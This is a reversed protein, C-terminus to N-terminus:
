WIRLRQEWGLRLGEDGPAKAIGRIWRAFFSDLSQGSARECARQFDATEVVGYAHDAVYSRLAKAFAPAGIQRELMVLAAPGRQFTASGFLTNFDAPNAPVIPTSAPARLGGDVLVQFASDGRTKRIWQWSMYESLSENLWIDEWSRVTLSNGFWQHAVEHAFVPENDGNGTILSAGIHSLTQGERFSPRAFEVLAYKEDAFPYPGLREDYFALIKGVNVFDSAAKASDEPFVFFDLPVRRGSPLLVTSRTVSYDAIAFSVADPYVPHRVTWHTTATTGNTGVVRDLQRGNSVALVGSPATIRIDLSDAKQAPDDLTPWWERASRPLGFSASRTPPPASFGVARRMPVGHYWVGVRVGAQSGGGTAPFVIQGPARVGRIGADAEPGMVRASDVILSDSLDLALDAAGARRSLTLQAIGDIRHALPDVAVRLDVYRLSWQAPAIAPSSAALVCVGLAGMSLLRGM